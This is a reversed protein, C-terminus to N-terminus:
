VPLSLLYIRIFIYSGDLMPYEHKRILDVDESYGKCYEADLCMKEPKGEM